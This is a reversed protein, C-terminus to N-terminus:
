RSKLREIELLADNYQIALHSPHDKHICIAVLLRKIEGNIESLSRITQEQKEIIGNQQTLWDELKVIAESPDLILGNRKLGDLENRIMNNLIGSPNSNAILKEHQMDIIQHAEELERKLNENQMKIGKFDDLPMEEDEDTSSVITTESFAKLVKPSELIIDTDINKLRLKEIEKLLRIEDHCTKRTETRSECLATTELDFMRRYLQKNLLRQKENQLQEIEGVGNDEKEALAAKWKRIELKKEDLEEQKKSLLLELLILRSDSTDPTTPRSPLSVESEDDM